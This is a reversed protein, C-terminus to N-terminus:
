YYGSWRSQAEAKFCPVPWAEFYAASGPRIRRNDEIAGSGGVFLEALADADGELGEARDLLVHLTIYEINSLQDVGDVRRRGRSRTPEIAHLNM